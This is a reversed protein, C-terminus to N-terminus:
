RVVALERRSPASEPGAILESVTRRADEWGCVRIRAPEHRNYPQTFLVGHHGAAEAEAVHKALDDVVVSGRPFGAFAKAKSAGVPLVMVDDLALAALNRRRMVATEPHRGAATVAVIATAPHAARLAGVAEAAGDLYAMEGYMPHEALAAIEAYIREPALGPFMNCLSWDTEARHSIAAEVGRGKMWRAFTALYELLVSDVDLIIAPRSM